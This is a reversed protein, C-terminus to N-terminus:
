TSQTAREREQLYAVIAHHRHDIAVWLADYHQMTTSPVLTLNLDGKNSDPHEVLMKFVVLDGLQAAFLTPTWEAMDNPEVKYRRNANAGYRLLVQIVQRYDDAPRILEKMVAEKILRHRDNATCKNHVKQRRAALDIDLVAGDKADYVDAPSKGALYAQEQFIDEPHLSFALLAIAYCLASPRYDCASEINAGLAILRAVTSSSGMEIAIKLPTERLTSAPRNVTERSLELDLLYELILPDKQDCARRLAYILPGEGSEKIFDNPDGGAAILSKVDDLTGESIAIMLPTRRTRGDAFKIKRNPSFQYQPDLAFTSERHIYETRPPIRDKAKLMPFMKEFGFAIRRMEQEDLKRKPGHNLGLMFTKDWYKEAAVKDGVGVAYLLAENLIPQQNPGSNWWCGLVASAYYRLAIEPDRQTAALRAAFWDHIYQYSGQLREPAKKIEEQLSSLKQSIAAAPTPLSTFLDEISSVLSIISARSPAQGQLYAQSCIETVAEHISWTHQQHLLIHRLLADRTSLPLSQLTVALILLGTLQHQSNVDDSQEASGLAAKIHQQYPWTIKGISQGALWREISRSDVELHNALHQLLKETPIAAQKATFNVWASFPTKLWLHATNHHDKPLCHRLIQSLMPISIKENFLAEGDASTLPSTDITQSLQQITKCTQLWSTHVLSAWIPGCENLIEKFLAGELKEMLEYSVSPRADLAIDDLDKDLGCREIFPRYGTARIGSRLIQGLKPITTNNTM